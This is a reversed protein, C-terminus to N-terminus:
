LSINSLLNNYSPIQQLFLSTVQQRNASLSGKSGSCTTTWLHKVVNNGEVAKYDYLDGTACVGDTNDADGTLQTGSMLDAKDLAYVFQKYSAVNNDLSTTGVVQDLYGKYTTLSRASPSIEVKYSYFNEDAVIPGRVIMVVKHESSTELLATRGEDSSQGVTTTGSNWFIAKSLSVIAAIAVVIIVLVLVVPLMKSRKSYGAM